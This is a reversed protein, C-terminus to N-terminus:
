CRRYVIKVERLMDKYQVNVAPRASQIGILIDIQCGELISKHKRICVQCIEMKWKRCALLTLLTIGRAGSRCDAWRQRERDRDRDM